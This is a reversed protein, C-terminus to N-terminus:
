GEERVSSESNEGRAVARVRSEEREREIEKERKAVLKTHTCWVTVSPWCREGNVRSVENEVGM